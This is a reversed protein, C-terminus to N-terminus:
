RGCRRGQVPATSTLGGQAQLRLKRESAFRAACATKSCIPPSARLRAERRHGPDVELLESFIMAGTQDKTTYRGVHGGKGVNDQVLQFMEPTPAYEAPIVNGGKFGGEVVEIFRVDPTFLSSVRSRDVGPLFFVEDTATKLSALFRERQLHEGKGEKQILAVLVTNAGGFDAQYQKLVKMYPHELPISKDFGADRRIM